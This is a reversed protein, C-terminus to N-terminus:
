RTVKKMQVKMKLDSLTNKRGWSEYAAYRRKLKEYKELEDNCKPCLIGRVWGTKHDHDLEGHMPSNYDKELHRMCFHCAYGQAALVEDWQAQTLTKDEENM